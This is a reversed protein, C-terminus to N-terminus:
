FMECVRVMSRFIGAGDLSGGGAREDLETM